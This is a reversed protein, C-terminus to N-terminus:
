LRRKHLESALVVEELASPASTLFCSGLGPSARIKPGLAASGAPERNQRTRLSLRLLGLFGSRRM